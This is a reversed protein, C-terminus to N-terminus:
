DGTYFAVGVFFCPVDIFLPVSFADPRAFSRLFSISYDDRGIDCRTEGGPLRFRGLALAISQKHAQQKLM